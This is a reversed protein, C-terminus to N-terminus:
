NLGCVIGRRQNQKTTVDAAMGSMLGAELGHTVGNAYSEDLARQHAAAAEDTSPAPRGIQACCYGVLWSAAAVLYFLIFTTM